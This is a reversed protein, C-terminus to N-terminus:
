SLDIFRDHNNEALKNELMQLTKDYDVQYANIPCSPYPLLAEDSLLCTFNCHTFHQAIDSSTSEELDM